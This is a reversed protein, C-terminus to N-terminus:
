RYADFAQKNVRLLVAPVDATVRAGYLCVEVYAPESTSCEKWRSQSDAHLTGIQEGVAEYCKTKTDEANLERCLSMGDESRANLDILNKVLGVYCWPQFKRTGMECMSIATKHNQLSYSSIDRGLSQYCVFKMAGPAKDCTQAADKMDGHNFYLIISTQMQYCSGLYRDPLKSCPYLKDNPDMAKFSSKEHSMGPMDDMASHDTHEAMGHAPHHPNTVNVINEMFAGGYCSQKDWDDKLLDCGELAKPLDHNYIMTLGHGM